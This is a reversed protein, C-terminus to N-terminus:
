RREKRRQRKRRNANTRHVQAAHYALENLIDNDMYKSCLKGILWSAKASDRCLKNKCKM